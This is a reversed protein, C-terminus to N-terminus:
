FLAGTACAAATPAPVGVPPPEGNVRARFIEYAAENKSMKRGEAKAAERIAEIEEKWDDGLWDKTLQERAVESSGCGHYRGGCICTCQPKRAKHCTADCRREGGSKSGCAGGARMITAM